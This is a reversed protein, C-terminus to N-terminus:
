YKTVKDVRWAWQTLDKYGILQISTQNERIQDKIKIYESKDYTKPTGLDDVIYVYLYYAFGNDEQIKDEAYVTFTTVAQFNSRSDFYADVRKAVTGAKYFNFTANTTGWPGWPIVSPQKSCILDAHCSSVLSQAKLASVAIMFIAIFFTIKKM